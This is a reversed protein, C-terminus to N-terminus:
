GKWRVGLYLSRGAERYGFVESFRRDGLNEVRLSLSIADSLDYVAAVDATVFGKRVIRSFGDRATDSQTSEGRATLAGSWRGDRWFLAASGSHDPARLLSRGAARDVADLWAYALRMSLAESLTASLEAELGSSSAKAINIYRGGTYSIQDRVLLRYGTLAASVGGGAWGFRLDQGEAREPRLPVAPRFCFDCVAQSITPTKFGTGAAGTLTFGRGLDFAAALRGTTRGQFAEPDDRRVSGTLTVRGLEARGIAFVATNSLDLRKGSSLDAASEQHEIGAVLARGRAATWRLVTRDADFLSPSERRLDYASLSVEHALGLAEVSARAFGQWARSRAVAPTDGLLFAPPAFGDIEIRARSYRLRADLRVTPSVTWRGSLNAAVTELGDDETGSAAKSFGDSRLTTLSASLAGADGTVGFGGFGRVTGYSGGELAAGAGDIERTTFSVVGGIAESGWLSGQPGSLVEIRSIDAAQLTGADFAGGPDSPDGMPVGDILVLTKDPSAGRIRIAALGGPGGARAVGVGPVTSLLDTAFVPGRAAIEEADIVRAAAIEAPVAPLRAATVVLEDVTEASGARATEARAAGTLAALAAGTLILTRM